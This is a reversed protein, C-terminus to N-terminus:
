PNGCPKDGFKFTYNVLVVIDDVGIFRDCNCDGVLLEPIPGGGFKFVYNIMKVIDGVNIENNWDFDGFLRWVYLDAYVKVPSNTATPSYVYFSDSYKGYTYSGVEILARPMSLNSGATDLIKLWPIDEEIWWDMCGPNQNFINIIAFEDFTPGFVEQAPLNQDMHAFIEPALSGPIVDLTVIAQQPSNAAQDSYVTITDKYTGVPLGDADLTLIILEGGVGSTLSLQLWDSTHTLYWSMADAGINEVQMIKSVPTYNPGQWCEYYSFNIATPLLAIVAPSSSIHYHVVLEQPSNVAEPSSVTITDYYDGLALTTINFSVQMSQPATGSSPTMGTIVKSSETASYTMAGEGSNYILVNRTLSISGPESVVHIMPPDFEMVPLDSVIQLTVPVRRPSNTAAPDTIVVTDYYFGYSLGSIDFQLTVSDPPTGSTPSLTLWSSSKSVTWNLESGVVDSWIYLFRDDPNAGGQIASVAFSSPSYSIEPPLKTVTLTVPVIQPSNDAEPCSVVITDYYEGETLGAVIVNISTTSPATGSAPNVTLWASSVSVSWDLTGQGSNNISLPKGLPNPWGITWEFDLLPPSLAIHPPVEPDGIRIEGSVVEPTFNTSNVNTFLLEAPAHRTSDVYVFQDPTGPPVDFYLTAMLGNGPPINAELFVIAGFVVKQISNYVTYPKTAIYDIRGGAYSISDLTIDASSWGLPITLAALDEDNFFNVEVIAKQGPDVAVSEIFLTDREGPDFTPGQGFSAAACVMLFVVLWLRRYHM